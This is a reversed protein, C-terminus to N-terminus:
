MVFSPLTRKCDYLNSYTEFCLVLNLGIYERYGMADRKGVLIAMGGDGGEVEGRARCVTM